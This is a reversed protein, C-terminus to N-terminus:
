AVLDQVLSVMIWYCSLLVAFRQCPRNPQRVYNGIYYKYHNRFNDLFIINWPVPVTLSYKLM